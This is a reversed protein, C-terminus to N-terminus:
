RMCHKNMRLLGSSKCGRESTVCLRKPCGANFSPDIEMKDLDIDAFEVKM